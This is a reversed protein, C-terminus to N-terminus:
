ATAGISREPVADSAATGIVGHDLLDTIETETLNLVTRLVEITHEGKVPVRRKDAVTVSSIKWPVGPLRRIGCLHHDVEEMFGRHDFHGNSVIELADYSVGAPVGAGQLLAMADDASHSSTWNTIADGIESSQEPRLATRHDDVSSILEPRGIVRCLSEWEAESHIAIAVWKDDGRCRYCESLCAGPEANGEPQPTRGNMTADMVADPMQALTSELMSVDIAQGFGTRSRQRLAALTAFTAYIAAIPDAGSARTVAPPNGPLGTAASLGSMASIQLGYFRYASLPGTQGAGSISVLLIDPKLQRLVNYGLGLRDLTGPSFNEIVVDCHKVLEKVLRLGDPVTLDITVTKKGAALAAYFASRESGQQGDAFPPNVRSIDTVQNSEVRLVEAGLHVLMQGCLPGALVWSLDLVRIGSLPLGDRRIETSTAVDRASQTLESLFADTDQGLTPAASIVPQMANSRYPAGPMSLKGLLPHAVETIFGRSRVQATTLAERVDYLPVIPIGLQQAEHFLIDKPWTAMRPALIPELVDWYEGRALASTFMLEDGLEPVGLMKTFASWHRPTLVAAWVYGDACTMYGMPARGVRHRKRYNPARREYYPYLMNHFASLVAADWVSVDVLQSRGTVDRAALGGLAAVAAAAGAVFDAYYGPPRVPSTSEANMGDWHTVVGLGALHSLTMNCAKWDSYVGDVGFPTVACVVADGHPSSFDIGLESLRKKSQGHLVIDAWALSRKLAGRGEESELDLKVSEKGTNLYQYLYSRESGQWGEAFPPLSRSADGHSEEIKVVRAGLMGLLKGCYPTAVLDGWELVCIGSLPHALADSLARKGSSTM